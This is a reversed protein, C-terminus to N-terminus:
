LDPSTLGDFCVTAGKDLTLSHLNLIEVSNKSGTKEIIDATIAVQKQHKLAKLKEYMAADVSISCTHEKDEFMLRLVVTGQQDSKKWAYQEIIAPLDTYPKTKSNKLLKKYRYVRDRSTRDFTVYQPLDIAVKESNSWDFFFELNDASESFVELFYNCFKSDINNKCLLAMNPEDNNAIFKSTKNLMLAFQMNIYRHISVNDMCVDDDSRKDLSVEASYIFSGAQPALMDVNALYDRIVENKGKCSVSSRAAFKLMQYFGNLAKLGEEFPIKGHAIKEGSARVKLCDNTNKYKQSFHAYKSYADKVEEVSDLSFTSVSDWESSHRAATKSSAVLKKKESKSGSWKRANALDFKTRM